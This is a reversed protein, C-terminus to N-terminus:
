AQRRRPDSRPGVNSVDISAVGLLRAPSDARLSFNLAAADVFLPDALISGADKGTAQWEAFTTPAQTPPFSLSRGDTAHYVNNSFSMNQLGDAVDTTFLTAAEDLGAGLLFINRTAFFSSFAGEGSGDAHKGSRLGARACDSAFTCPWPSPPQSTPFALVNNDLVNDLGYHQQALASGVHYAVNFSVNVGTAAQDLYLAHAGNAGAFVDHIVNNTVLTGPQPGVLYIGALDSLRFLGIDHVHNFSIVMGAVDTATYSWTWGVSIGTYAFNAVENHRLEGDAATQWLIGTGAECVHGGDEIACDEVLVGRTLNAGPPLVGSAAVGVRLGGGGLDHLWCRRLAIRACGDEVFVATQGSAAVEVGEFVVDSAGHLHVAALSGDACSQYSCGDVGCDEDSFAGGHAVTLNVFRVSAAGPATTLVERLAPAVLSIGAATEGPALRYTLLRAAPDFMFTGPALVSANLVNLLAYRQDAGYDSESTWSTNFVPPAWHLIPSVSSTWTHYLKVRSAAMETATWAADASGPALTVTANRPGYVVSAYQRVDTATLFRRAGGAGAGLGLSCLQGVLGEPWVAAPLVASVLGGGLVTLPPLPVGGSLVAPPGAPPGLWTVFASGTGGSSEAITLPQALFYLGGALHVTVNELLPGGNRLFFIAQAARGPTRWAASPSAGSAGDDGTPSLYFAADARVWSALAAACLFPLTRRM